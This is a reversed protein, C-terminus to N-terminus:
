LLMHAVQLRISRKYVGRKVKLMMSKVFSWFAKKTHKSGSNSWQLKEALHSLAQFHKSELIEKFSEDLGVLLVPINKDSALSIALKIQFECWYDNLTEKSIVLLISNSMLMHETIVDIMYGGVPFDRDQVCISFGFDEELKKILVACVWFRDRPCYSIFSDFKNSLKTTPKAIHDLLQPHRQIKQQRTFVNQFFPLSAIRTDKYNDTTAIAQSFM